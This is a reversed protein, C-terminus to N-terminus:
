ATTTSKEAQLEAEETALPQEANEGETAKSFDETATASTSSDPGQLWRSRCADGTNYYRDGFDGLGPVIYKHENMCPDCAATVVTLAPHDTVIKKIGEPCSVVNLFLIKDERVGADLLCKIAACASGGTALMPDVLMVTRHAADPPLKHYFYIPKKEPDSEDRQVLVHGVAIGEAVQRVAELLTDGSRVVSVACLDEFDIGYERGQYAACPTQITAPGAQPLRALGEEALIRMIRDSYRVFRAQPTNKDRIVTFLADLALSQLVHVKPPLPWLGQTQLNEITAADTITQAM